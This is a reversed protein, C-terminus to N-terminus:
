GADEEWELCQGWGWEGTRYDYTWETSFPERYSCTVGEEPGPLACAAPVLLLILVLLRRM